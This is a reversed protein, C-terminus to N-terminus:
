AAHLEIQQSWTFTEFTVSPERRFIVTVGAARSLRQAPQYAITKPSLFLAAAPERRTRGEALSCTRQRAGTPCARPIV